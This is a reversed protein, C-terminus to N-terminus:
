QFDSKCGSETAYNFASNKYAFAYCAHSILIKFYLSSFTNSNCVNIRINFLIAKLM